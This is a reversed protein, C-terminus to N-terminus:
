KNNWKMCKLTNKEKWKMENYSTCNYRTSCLLCVFRQFHIEIFLNVAFLVFPFRLLLRLVLSLIMLLVGCKTSVNLYDWRFGILWGIWVVSIRGIHAFTQFWVCTCTFRVTIIKNCEGIGYVRCAFLVFVLVFYLLFFFMIFILVINFIYIISSDAWLSLFCIFSLFFFRIM